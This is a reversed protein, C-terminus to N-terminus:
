KTLEKYKEVGWKAIFEQKTLFAADWKEQKTNSSAPLTFKYQTYQCGNM